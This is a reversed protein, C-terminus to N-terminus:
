QIRKGSKSVTGLCDSNPKTIQRRRVQVLMEKLKDLAEEARERDESAMAALKAAAKSSEVHMEALDVIRDSLSRFTGRPNLASSLSGSSELESRFCHCDTLKVIVLQTIYGSLSTLLLSRRLPM